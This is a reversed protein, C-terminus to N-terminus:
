NVEALAFLERVWFNVVCDIVLHVRDESSPNLVRHPLNFNLYWCEGSKMVVRTKRLYTEVASNTQIPIHLRVLGDDYSLMLDTHEKITGGAHLKLLRVAQKPCQFSEIVEKLYPCQDIIPTERLEFNDSLMPLIFYSSGTPSYLALVRWNGEYDAPNFHAHWLQHPIRELEQLLLLPNFELPLKVLDHM